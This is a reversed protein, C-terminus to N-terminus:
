DSPTGYVVFPRGTPALRHDDTAVCASQPRLKMLKRAGRAGSNFNQQGQACGQATDFSDIISWNVIPAHANPLGNIGTPPIMLYWGFLVLAAAHTAKM